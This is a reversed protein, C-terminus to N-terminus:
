RKIQILVKFLESMQDSLLLQRIARNRRAAPSFPDQSLTDQLKQLLGNHVLFQKQTLFESPQLGVALGARILDTFNVHSTIDQSGPEFYPDDHALHRRYCILTGNMRHPAILEDARDGYDITVVQGRAIANGIRRLWADAALNVELQQGEMVDLSLRRVYEQLPGSPIPMLRESFCKDADNWQVWIELLQGKEFQVRHVPFADLLENSLVIVNEWPGQQLWDQETLWSVRNLHGAFSRRQHTRHYVSTEVSIFSLRRYVAPHESKMQDLLQRAMDGTGGGWEVVTVPEDSGFTDAQNVVYDALVEGLLGGIASSTYYDGSRGIKEKANMYYGYEPHYLCQEMYNEFSICQEPSQRILRRIIPTLM